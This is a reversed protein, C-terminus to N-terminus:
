KIKKDDKSEREENGDFVVTSKIMESSKSIGTAPVQLLSMRMSAKHIASGLLM